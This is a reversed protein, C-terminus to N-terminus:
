NQNQQCFIVLYNYDQNDLATDNILPLFAVSADPLILFFFIISYASVPTSKMEIPSNVFLRFLMSMLKFAM